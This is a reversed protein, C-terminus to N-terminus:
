PVAWTSARDCPRRAPHQRLDIRKVCHGFRSSPPRVSYAAWLLFDPPSGVCGSGRLADLFSVVHSKLEDKSAESKRSGQAHRSGNLTSRVLVMMVHMVMAEKIPHMLVTLTLHMVM